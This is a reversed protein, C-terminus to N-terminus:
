IALYRGKRTILFKRGTADTIVSGPRHTLVVHVTAKPNRNMSRVSTRVERFINTLGLALQRTMPTNKVMDVYSVNLTKM